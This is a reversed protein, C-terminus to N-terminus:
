SGQGKLDVILPVGLKVEGTQDIETVDGDTAGPHVEVSRPRDGDLIWVHSTSVESGVRKPAVSVSLASPPVFRLAANPVVLADRKTSAVITATCTMGPRLLKERNDVELVARYTVVNQSTKPENELSIVRSAFTREPFAEVRFTAPLSERVRGVDAEDIDVNLRMKTLDQALRFLVPTTFGATVTQGPEIYRALVIGDIPSVITTKDLRSRGLALSARALRANALASALSAKARARDAVSSDFESAALLGEAHLRESRNAKATQEELTARAQDVTADAVAVQATAQDTSAHLQEPDIVALVQGRRVTDNANVEVGLVRGTVEAGVDVSTVAQLAGTAKVLVHVDGRRVARTEYTPGSGAARGRWYATALVPVAVVIALGVWTSRKRGTAYHGVGIDCRVEDAARDQLRLLVDSERTSLAPPEDALEYRPREPQLESPLLALTPAWGVEPALRELAQAIVHADDLVASPFGVLGLVALANRPAAAGPHLVYDFCLAGGEIIESFYHPAFEARLLTLLERDHTAAVVHAGACQLARLFAAGASIRDITNTGRFLEDVICLSRGSKAGDLMSLAVEAEVRFHSRSSLLDDAIEVLTHVRLFPARYRRSTSAFITQALVAQLATAKLFTSKGAMNSGTIVYGRAGLRLDNAVGGIVLPHLLAEVVVEADRDDLQPRAIACEGARYNAVSMSADMEGLVEFLTALTARRALSFELEKCYANVDLLLLVNAYEVVIASMEDLRLGDLTLWALTVRRQGLSSLAARLEGVRDALAPHDLLAVRRAVAVLNAIHRLGEVHVALDRFVVLRIGINLIVSTGLGLLFLPKAIALFALLVTAMTALPFLAAGRPMKARAGFIARSLAGAGSGSLPRLASALEVRVSEGEEFAAVRREFDLLPKLTLRPRRLQRWLVQQGLSSACRDIRAFVADMNLDRWTRENLEYTAENADLPSLRLLEGIEDLDRAREIPEGWAAQVRATMLSLTTRRVWAARLVLALLFGVVALAGLVTPLELHTM